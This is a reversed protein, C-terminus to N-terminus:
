VAWAPAFTRAVERVADHWFPAAALYVGGVAIAGVAADVSKRGDSAWYVDQLDLLLAFEDGILAMGAGYAAGVVPHERATADGRVAVAGMAALLAIGFNYHHIHRGRIMIGGSGADGRLRHTILRAIGFTAGFSAWAVLMSRETTGIRDTWIEHLRRPLRAPIAPPREEVPVETSPHGNRDPHEDM